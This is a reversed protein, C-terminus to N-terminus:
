AVALAPCTYCLDEPIKFVAAQKVGCVSPKRSQCLCLASEDGHKALVRAWPCHWRDEQSRRFHEVRMKNPIATAGNNAFESCLSVCLWQSQPGGVQGLSATQVDRATTHFDLVRDDWPLGCHQLLRRSWGEQDQVLEEYPVRLVRGPLLREWHAM